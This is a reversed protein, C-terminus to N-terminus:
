VKVALLTLAANEVNLQLQNTFVDLPFPGFWESAGFAIEEVKDAIAYAGAGVTGPTVFTVDYATDVSTNTVRVVVRAGDNDVVNGNAVDGATGAGLTVGALTIQTATLETRAM